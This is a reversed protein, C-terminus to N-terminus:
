AWNCDCQPANLQLRTAVSAIALRTTSMCSLLVGLRHPQLWLQLVPLFILSVFFKSPFPSFILYFLFPWISCDIGGEMSQWRSESATVPFSPFFVFSRPLQRSAVGMAIEEQASCTNSTRRWRRQLPLLRATGIVGSATRGLTQNNDVGGIHSRWGRASAHGRDGAIAAGTLM